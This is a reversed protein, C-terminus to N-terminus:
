TSFNFDIFSMSKSHSLDNSLNLIIKHSFIINEFKDYFIIDSKNLNIEIYPINFGINFNEIDKRLYCNIFISKIQNNIISIENNEYSFLHQILEKM